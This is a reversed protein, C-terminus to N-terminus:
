RVNLGSKNLSDNVNNESFKTTKDKFSSNDFNALISSDEFIEDDEFVIKEKSTSPNNSM